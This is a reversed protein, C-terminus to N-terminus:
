YSDFLLKGVKYLKEKVFWVDEEETELKDGGDMTLDDRSRSLIARRSVMGVRPPGDSPRTPMAASPPQVEHTPGGARLNLEHSLLYAERPPLHPAPWPM